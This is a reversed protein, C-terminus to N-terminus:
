ANSGSQFTREWKQLLEFKEYKDKSPLPFFAHELYRLSNRYLYPRLVSDLENSDTLIPSWYKETCVIGRIHDPSCSLNFQRNLESESHSLVYTRLLLKFALEFIKTKQSFYTKADCTNDDSSSKRIQVYRLLDLISEDIFDVSCTRANLIPMGKIEGGSYFVVECECHGAIKEFQSLVDNDSKAFWDTFHIFAVDARSITKLNDESIQTAVAGWKLCRKVDYYYIM